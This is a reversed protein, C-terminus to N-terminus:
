QDSSTSPWPSPARLHRLLFLADSIAAPPQAGRPWGLACALEGPRLRRPDPPTTDILPVILKPSGGRARAEFEPLARADAPSFRRFEDQTRALDDDLM